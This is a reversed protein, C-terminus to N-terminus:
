LLGYFSENYFFCMLIKKFVKRDLNLNNKNSNNKYETLTKNYVDEKLKCSKNKRKVVNTEILIKEDYTLLGLIQFGSASADLKIKLSEKRQDKFLLLNKSRTDGQPNLPYGHYYVRGRFDM